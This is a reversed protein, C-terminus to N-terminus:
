QLHKLLLGSFSLERDIQRRTKSIFLVLYFKVILSFSFRMLHAGKVPGDGKIM